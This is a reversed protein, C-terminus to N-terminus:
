YIKKINPMEWSKDYYSELPGYLRFYVFFGKEPNSQIWNNEYGEPAKTGVFIKTSGDAEVKVGNMVSSLDSKKQDNIILCRTDNDYVTLSWFQSAPADKPIVIVYTNKGDLWEKNEDVYAGLYKSGKGRSELIMGKSTSMAEYTYSGIEKVEYYNPHKHDLYEMNLIYLWNRNKWHKEKYSVKSFTNVMAIANGMDEAEILIEKQKETPNFEKGIEIGTGRLQTLIFRNRDVVPENQLVSNLFEWYQLGRPQSGFWQPNDTAYIFKQNDGSEGVKYVKHKKLTKDFAEESLKGIIRTGLINLNSSSRVVYDANHVAPIESEPGVLLYKGGKGKDPGLIGLDSAPSQYIDFIIGGIVGEDESSRPIEIYYNSESLDVPTVVYPTTANATLIPLKSERTKYIVWDGYDGESLLGRHWQEVAVIPLSYEHASVAKIRLQEDRIDEVISQKLYGNDEYEITIVEKSKSETSNNNQDTNCSYTIIAILMIPILLKKM